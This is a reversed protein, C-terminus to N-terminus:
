KSGETLITFATSSSTVFNEKAKSIFLAAIQHKEAISLGEKEGAVLLATAWADAMMANEALVTVSATRHDVPKGTTPNIIHSYRVGDEEFFNRYDGSTAMSLDSISLVLKVVRDESDPQEIGIAWPIGKSNKGSVSLDGGIEILFREIGLKKFSQAVKDVGYGKAIASLNISVNDSTKELTKRNSDVLLMKDQGVFKLAQEIEYSSPVQDELNKPGFGWLDIVPSVTLDFFGRSQAHVKEAAVLVELMDNSINEPKLSSAENLLSIESKKDWNSMKANVSKLTAEVTELIIEETVDKPAAVAVISYSTGMTKGSIRITEDDDENWFCASILLPILLLFKKLTLMYLGKNKIYQFFQALV